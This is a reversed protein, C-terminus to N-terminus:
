LKLLLKAGRSAAPTSAAQDLNGESSGLAPAAPASALALATLLAIALVGSRGLRKAYM